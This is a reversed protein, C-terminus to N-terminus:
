EPSEQCRDLDYYNADDGDDDKDEGDEEDDIEADIAADKGLAALLDEDKMRADNDSVM